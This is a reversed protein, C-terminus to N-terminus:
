GGHTMRVQHIILVDSVRAGDPWPPNNTSSSRLQLHLSVESLTAQPPLTIPLIILLRWGDM